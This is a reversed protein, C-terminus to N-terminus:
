KILQKKYLQDIFDIIFDSLDPGPYRSNMEEIIASVTRKNDCLELIEQASSNITHLSGKIKIVLGDQLTYVDDYESKEPIKDENM